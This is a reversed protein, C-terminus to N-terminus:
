NRSPFTPGSQSRHFVRQPFIVHLVVKRWSFLGDNLSFDFDSSLPTEYLEKDSDVQFNVNFPFQSDATVSRRIFM